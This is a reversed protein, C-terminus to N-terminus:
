SDYQKEASVQPSETETKVRSKAEQAVRLTDLAPRRTDPAILSYRQLSEPTIRSYGRIVRTQVAAGSLSDFLVCLAM